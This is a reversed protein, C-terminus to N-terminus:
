LSNFCEAGIACWYYAKVYTIVDYSTDNQEANILSLESYFIFIMSVDFPGTTFTNGKRGFQLGHCLFTWIDRIRRDNVELVHM